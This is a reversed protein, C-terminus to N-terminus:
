RGRSRTEVRDMRQSLSDQASQLDQIDTSHSDEGSWLDQIATSQSDQGRQLDDVKGEHCSLRGVVGIPVVCTSLLTCTSVASCSIGRACACVHMCVFCECVYVYTCASTYIYTHMNRANCIGMLVNVCLCM